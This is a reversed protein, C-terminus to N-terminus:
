DFDRRRREAKKKSDKKKIDLRKENGAKISHKSQRTHHTRPPLLPASHTANLAL